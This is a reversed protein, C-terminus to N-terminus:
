KNESQLKKSHQITTVLTKKLVEMNFPKTLHANMGAELCKKADEEFANATMAIIPITKADARDLARIATTATLGDMVPMMIDMLIVDFTDAPCKCFLELVQQGNSVVTIEAGQDTLLSEAIEANLDNDEALLVRMGQISDTPVDTPESAIPEQAMEFPITITFVSGEGETSSVTITGHMQELLSKVISMGLGTGQYVSRADNKEQSFPDFIHKQFEESMGIGTDTIVWQYTVTRDKVGLCDVKSDIKGGPKNYKICNSYINLFIQRLHLPSGYVYPYPLRSHSDFEMSINAEAAHEAVITMIDKALPRLDFGEHALTITGDELKSMQLVDNILALLHNAAVGMKEHNSKILNIDDFHAEDIKLLGIIGNLPTRIDHSMRSLFRSKAANAKEAQVVAEHLQENKAQLMETYTQQAELQKKQYIRETRWWFMHLFALLLAYLFLIYLLNKPTVEFVARETMYAYIYYDQSKDMLGFDHSFATNGKEAHVLKKGSTREMMRKVIPVTETNTGILSENNSAIIHNGRSVLITGDQDSEYGAVLTRISNNFIQTYSASTYFCGLIIGATDARQVAALDLHSGDENSIRVAYTKEAFDAVDLLADTDVRRLIEEASYDTDNYQAAITGDPNLLILGDLYSDKACSQLSDRSEEAPTQFYKLRWRIEEVSETVRLLSKSESALDRLQSANCQAKIYEVTKSLRQQARSIDLNSSVFFTILLLIMGVLIELPVTKHWPLLPKKTKM